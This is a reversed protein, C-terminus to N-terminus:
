ASRHASIIIVVSSGRLGARDPDGVAPGGAPALRTRSWSVHWRPLHRSLWSPGASDTFKPRSQASHQMLEQRHQEVLTKAIEPHM